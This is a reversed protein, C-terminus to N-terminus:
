GARAARAPYYDIIKIIYSSKGYKQTNILTSSHILFKKKNTDNTHLLCFGTFSLLINIYMKLEYRFRKQEISIEESECLVSTLVVNCVISIRPATKKMVATNPKIINAISCLMKLCYTTKM